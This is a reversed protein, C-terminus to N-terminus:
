VPYYAVGGRSSRGQRALGTNVYDDMARQLALKYQKGYSAITSFSLQTGLYSSLTLGKGEGLRGNLELYPEAFRSVNSRPKPRYNPAVLEAPSVDPSPADLDSELLRNVIINASV